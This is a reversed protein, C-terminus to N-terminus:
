RLIRFERLFVYRAGMYAIRLGQRGDLFGARIFFSKVFNAVPYVLLRVPNFRRGRNRLDAAALATYRDITQYHEDISRFPFHLLNGRFRTVQGNIELSEHVLQPNWRVRRRDYLRVKRDPYWGSHRIWRGQYRALRPMSCAVVGQMPGDRKWDLIEAALEPSPQEDADVSLVWDHESRSAAYNKQDSYGTWDRTLIRAGARSAVECTRDRSGSDVVLIEDCFYLSRVTDGIRDEENLTIIIASIPVAGSM